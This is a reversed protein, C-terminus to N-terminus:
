EIEQDDPNSVDRPADESNEQVNLELLQAREEDFAPDELLEEVDRLTPLADLDPLGFEELFRNTTEYLLPRGLSDSRGQVDVLGLEMLKKIAYDSNVGRVFDVEPRTVPQRYAVVALTEMLSRSLSTEQEGVFYAKVFPSVSSRTALRYGGGWEHIKFARGDRKYAENLRRLVTKIEDDSPRERGTVESVIDAVKSAAVPEDAAFIIAETAERLTHDEASPSPADAKPGSDPTSSSPSTVKCYRFISSERVNRARGM